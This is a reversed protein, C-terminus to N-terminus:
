ETTDSSRGRRGKGVGRTLMSPMHLSRAPTDVGEATAVTQGDADSARTGEAVGQADNTQRAADLQDACGRLTAAKITAGHKPEAMSRCTYSKAARESADAAMRWSDALGANSSSSLADACGNLTGAAVVCGHRQVRTGNTTYAKATQMIAAAQQRWAATLENDTM